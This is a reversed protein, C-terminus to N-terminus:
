NLRADNSQGDGSLLFAAWYYPHRRKLDASYILSRQAQSLSEVFSQHKVRHNLHFSYMIEASSEDDVEWLSAIVAPVGAAFFSQALAGLAEGRTYDGLASRCGSLIVLKTRPFKLQYIEQAQLTGDTTIGASTREKTEPAKEVALLISSLLPSQENILIHSAIHAIEYNGLRRILESETANERSFSENQQYLSRARTVEEEASPLAPLGSYLHNDFRPNSVGIFSEATNRRKMAALKATRILVSASPATSISFDEVLYRNTLPSFIAAFPLQYLTGDPVVCLPRNHDLKAAVPAILLQYLEASQRNLTEIDRRSRLTQLYGSVSKQLRDYDYAVSATFVEKPTILWILINKETVSYSLLQENQPLANQVQKLTLPRANGSLSLVIRGDNLTTAAKGSLTDLLSRGKAIEAYDFAALPAQKNNFQLDIMSRYVNQRSALFASRGSADKIQQRDREALSISIRLEAEAKSIKGQALYAAALGQHIASLYVRTNTTKITQLARQYFAISEETNGQGLYVDGLTPYLEVNLLQRSTQDSVLKTRSMADNLYNTAEDYRGLKWSTLGLRSANGALFFPDNLALASQLAEQQYSLSMQYNGLLFFTEGTQQYAAFTLRSVPQDRLMSLVEFDKGLAHEYDSTRSYAASAYRLSIITTPVDGLEKAIEAARLSNELSLTSQQSALYANALSSHVKAQIQRHQRRESQAIIQNGLTAIEQTKARLTYYRLLNVAATEAHEQDGIREAAQYASQYLKFAADHSSRDFESDAQRLMLRVSQMASKVEPSARSAFDALDNLYEDKKIESTLHGILRLTKLQAEAAPNNGEIAASLYNDFLPGTSFQKIAVFNQNVLQRFAAEDNSEAAKELALKANKTKDTSQTARTRLKNLRDRAEKAWHSNSDINLYQNWDKEAKDFLKMEEYCLARNFWAEALKPSIAIAENYHEVAKTLLPVPDAYKSREYYLAALDTHLSADQKTDNLARIMQDEAEDFKGLLLYLRGLAHRTESTPNSAVTRTLEALAYNIQDRDIDPNDANGRKREYARWEFGGTVRAELPRSSPYSRNVAVLSNQVPSHTRAYWYYGGGAVAIVLAVGVLQYSRLRIFGALMDFFGRGESSTQPPQAPSAPRDKAISQNNLHGGDQRAQAITEMGLPFLRELQQREIENGDAACVRLLVSLRTRCKECTFCHEDIEAQETPSCRGIAYAAILTEAPHGISSPYSDKM